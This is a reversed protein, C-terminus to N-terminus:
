LGILNTLAGLNVSLFGTIYGFVALAACLILVTYFGKTFQKM